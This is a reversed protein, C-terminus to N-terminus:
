GSSKYRKKADALDSIRGAQDLRWARTQNNVAPKIVPVTRVGGAVMVRLRPHRHRLAEAHEDADDRTPHASRVTWALQVTNWAM